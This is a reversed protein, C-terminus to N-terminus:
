RLIGSTVFSFDGFDLPEDEEEGMFVFSHTALRLYLVCTNRRFFVWFFLVSRFGWPGLQVGAM